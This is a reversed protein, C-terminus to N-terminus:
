RPRPQSQSNEVHRTLSVIPFVDSSPVMIELQSVVKGM